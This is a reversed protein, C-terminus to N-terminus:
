AEPYYINWARWYDMITRVACILLLLLAFRVSKDGLRLGGIGMELYFAGCLIVVTGLNIKAWIAEPGYKSSFALQAFFGWVIDVVLLSTLGIGFYVPQAIVTALGLFFCAEVFLIIFDALLAGTKPENAVELYAADLHRMAGHYFPLLTLVFAVFCIITPA